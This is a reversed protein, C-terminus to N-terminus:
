KLRFFEAAYDILLDVLKSIEERTNRYRAEDGGIPDEVDPDKRRRDLEGLVIVKGVSGPSLDHLDQRQDETMTVVLDAEDLMRKTLLRARHGSLDIGIEELVKAANTSARMGDFAATGASEIEIGGIKRAALRETMIAAAMPSRCANGTCVFLVKKATSGKM